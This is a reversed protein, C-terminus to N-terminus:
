SIYLKKKKEGMLINLEQELKEIRDKLLQNESELTDARIEAQNLANLLPWRLKLSNGRTRDSDLRM